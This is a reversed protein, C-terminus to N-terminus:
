YNLVCMLTSFFCSIALSLELNSYWPLHDTRFYSQECILSKFLFLLILDEVCTYLWCAWFFRWCFLWRAQLLKFQTIRSNLKEMQRFMFVSIYAVSFRVQFKLKSEGRERDRKHMNVMFAEYCDKWYLAMQEHGHRFSNEEYHKMNPIIQEWWFLICIIESYSSRQELSSFLHSHWWFLRSSVYKDIYVKWEDSRCYEQFDEFFSPSGNTSPLSPLHLNMFLLEYIKSVLTRVLPILFSYTETKEEISRSLIGELKGLLYCAEPQSEIVKTQLLTNLKAAAM